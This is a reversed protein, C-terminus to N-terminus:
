NLCTPLESGLYGLVIDNFARMAQKRAATNEMLATMGDYSLLENSAGRVACNEDGVLVMASARSAPTPLVLQRQYTKAWAIAFSYDSTSGFRRALERQVDDRVGDNDSDIGELTANNLTPDPEPPLCPCIVSISVPLPRSVLDGPRGLKNLERLQLTGDIVGASADIPLTLRISVQISQGKRLRDINTPEVTLYPKLSNTVRMQAREISERATLTVVTTTSEGPKLSVALARPSWSADARDHAPAPSSYTLAVFAGALLVAVPGAVALVRKM